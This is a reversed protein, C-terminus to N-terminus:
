RAKYAVVNGATVEPKGLLDAASKKVWDAAVRNSEEAGAQSKFVSVSAWVDDGAEIAYYAVFGPVKSILPVFEERVLRTAEASSKTHYRRISVYKGGEKTETATAKSLGGTTILGVGVALAIVAGIVFATKTRNM